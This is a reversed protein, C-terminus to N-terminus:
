SCPAPGGKFLYNILWVVDSVTVKGDCNVDGLYEPEPEIGGKFLYNILFVVDSVTTKKDTNADGRLYEIVECTFTDVQDPPPVPANLALPRDENGNLKIALSYYGTDAGPEAVVKVMYQGVLPNPITVIDDKDGDGNEDFTTDYTADLITNFSVGISDGNPATVILDVPSYAFYWLTEPLGAEVFSWSQTSWTEAGWNDYVNVKWYYTDIGLAVSYKSLPLSDYVVTSDPNFGPDTSVFLDYRIQDGFNPEYPTQWHFTTSGIITDGDSPSILSFAWPPQNAPAQTLNKLISVNGSYNAVALDLDTDGDLDACFVSHPYSGTSYDVKTQFTGNGNNKLISINYSYYNAVALDLDGDGDIDACFISSPADGVVYNVATQFTGDGNNKFISVSDTYENTVAFDLDTDGDIDACFVSAPAYGASYNVASQFTGDGNNNLISVIGSGHYAVALDLDSDGDLDACFVSHPDDGPGYDVKTQFTGEGNNKLISVNNSGDNAVALDLDGDGDLDACFVSSPDSGVGYDVKSQFTGDGNNKLITVTSIDSYNAVVLDLDTDGDLDACFISHPAHGADYDVKSQFNGNGNNELISVSDSDENTVALDLDGDGDLDACFVDRLGGGAGYNVAPAFDFQVYKITAYDRSTGIGHSRGAVYVNGSNDVAVKGAVDDLNGPGNYEVVWVSDGNPKYKITAYDAMSGTRSSYGTVYVNGANDVALGRAGDSYTTTGYYRRVWATDGNPYYKITAYNYNTGIDWSEGTVYVNGSDDVVMAQTFDTTDSPGNYRRMWATDGNSYYKITAYDQDTGSGVSSGTVYINGLDDVALANASDISNGPGNYRRVWATDGNSYYKITAYDYDTGSGISKGTIFVNGSGDVAIARADDQDNGPGNYRRVWATDGNSYYKITVYDREAATTGNQGTVYVNGSGDIALVRVYDSFTEAGNYRRLWVTDGNPNYKITVIDDLTESGRSRGTVYVNGSDDVKLDRAQDYGNGTGNYRRVWATDGNSYYKITAYDDDTGSGASVGTIYVNGSNDIAMAELFESSNGPGDYRRVWATDVYQAFAEGGTAFRDIGSVENLMELVPVALLFFIAYLLLKKKM